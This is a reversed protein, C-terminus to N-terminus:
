KFLEKSALGKIAKRESLYQPVLVLSAIVVYIPLAPWASPQFLIVWVVGVIFSATVSTLSYRWSLSYRVKSQDDGKALKRGVIGFGLGYAFAVIMILLSPPTTASLLLHLATFFAASWVLSLLAYLKLNHTM